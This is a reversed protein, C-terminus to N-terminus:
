TTKANPPLVWIVATSLTSAALCVTATLVYKITGKVITAVVIRTSTPLKIVIAKASAM